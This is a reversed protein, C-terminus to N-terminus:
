LGQLVATHLHHMPSCIKTMEKQWLPLKNFLRINEEVNLTLNM